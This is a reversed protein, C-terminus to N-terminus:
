CAGESKADNYIKGDRKLTALLYRIRNVKNKNDFSKPLKDNLLAM